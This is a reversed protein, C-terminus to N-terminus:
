KTLLILLIIQILLILPLGLKFKLHKTKHRFIYMGLISGISGGLISFLFLTKEPIRFKHKKAKEKDIFMLIFSTINIIILYLIFAKNM